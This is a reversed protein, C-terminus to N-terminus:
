SGMRPLSVVPGFLVDGADPLPGARAVATVVGNVRAAPGARHRHPHRPEVPVPLARLPPPGACPTGLSLVLGSVFTLFGVPILGM